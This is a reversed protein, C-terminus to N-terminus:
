RRPGASPTAGSPAPPPLSGRDEPRGDSFVVTVAALRDLVEDAIDPNTGPAVRLIWRRPGDNKLQASFRQLDLLAYASGSLNVEFVGIAHSTSPGRHFFLEVRGGSRLEAVQGVSLEIRDEERRNPRSPDEPDGPIGQDVVLTDFSFVHIPVNIPSSGDTPAGTSGAGQVGFKSISPALPSCRGFVVLLLAGCTAAALSRQVKKRVLQRAKMSNVRPLWQGLEM